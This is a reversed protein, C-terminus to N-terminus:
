ELRRTKRGRRSNVLKEVARQAIEHPSAPTGKLVLEVVVRAVRGRLDQEDNELVALGQGGIARWAAEFAPVLIDLQSRTVRLGSRRVYERV